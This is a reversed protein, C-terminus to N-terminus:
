NITPIKKIVWMVGKYTFYGAEFVLFIVLISIITAMPLVMDLPSIYTGATAISSTFNSDISVDALLQLPATFLYITAYLLYLIATSIMTLLRKRTGELSM